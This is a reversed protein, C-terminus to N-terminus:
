IYNKMRRREKQLAKRIAQNIQQV